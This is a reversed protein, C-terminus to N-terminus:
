QIDKLPKAFKSINTFCIVMDQMTNLIVTIVFQISYSQESVYQVMLFILINMLYIAVFNVCLSRFSCSSRKVEKVLSIITIEFM